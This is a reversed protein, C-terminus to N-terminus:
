WPRAVTVHPARASVALPRLICWWRGAARRVGRRSGRPPPRRRWPRGSPERVLEPVAASPRDRQEGLGGRRRGGSGCGTGSVGGPRELHLHGEETGSRRAVGAHGGVPPDEVPSSGHNVGGLDAVLAGRRPPRRNSCARSRIAEAGRASWRGEQLRSTPLRAAGPAAGETAIDPLDSRRACSSWRAPSLRDTDIAGSVSMTPGTVPM